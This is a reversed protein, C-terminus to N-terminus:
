ISLKLLPRIGRASRSNSRPAGAGGPFQAMTALGIYDEEDGSTILRKDWSRSRYPSYTTSKSGITQQSPQQLASQRGWRTKQWLFKVLPQYSLLCAAILYMGLEVNTWIVVNASTWTVDSVLDYTFLMYWNIIAAILGSSSVNSAFPDSSNASL